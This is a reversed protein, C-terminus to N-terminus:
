TSEIQPLTRSEVPMEGLMPVDITQRASVRAPLSYPKGPEYLEWVTIEILDDQGVVAPRLAPKISEIDFGPAMEIPQSVWNTLWSLATSPTAAPASPSSSQGSMRASTELMACGSSVPLILWGLLVAILMRGTPAGTPAFRQIHHTCHMIERFWTEFQPAQKM